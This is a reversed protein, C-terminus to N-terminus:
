VVWNKLNNKGEGFVGGEWFVFPSPATKYVDIVGTEEL